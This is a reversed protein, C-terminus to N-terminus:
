AAGRRAARGSAFTVKTAHAPLDEGMGAPDLREYRGAVQGAIVTESSIAPVFKVHLGRALFLGRHLAVFFGASDVAPVVAVTLDPKELGPAHAAGGSCGATAPVLALAAALLARRRRSKL